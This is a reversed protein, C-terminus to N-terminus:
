HDFTLERAVTELALMVTQVMGREAIQINGSGLSDVAYYLTDRMAYLKEATSACIIEYQEAKDKAEFLEKDNEHEIEAERIAKWVGSVGFVMYPQEGLANSIKEFEGSSNVVEEGNEVKQIFEISVGAKEALEEQTMGHLRRYYGLQCYEM